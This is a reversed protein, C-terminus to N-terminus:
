IQWCGRVFGLGLFNLGGDLAPACINHGTCIGVCDGNGFNGIGVDGVRMILPPQLPGLIKIIMNSMGGHKALIRLAERQTTYEKRFDAMPDIKWKMVKMLFEATFTCCDNVGWILPACRYEEVFTHVSNIREQTIIKTATYKLM